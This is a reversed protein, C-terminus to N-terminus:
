KSAEGLNAKLRDILKTAESINMDWRGERLTLGYQKRPVSRWGFEDVDLGLRGALLIIYRKQKDTMTTM